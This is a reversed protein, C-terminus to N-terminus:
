DIISLFNNYAEEVDVFCQVSEEETLKENSKLQNLKILWEVIKSRGNFNMKTVRNLSTALAALLPHLDEKGRYNLHVGDCFTIFNGAAQAVAKASTHGRNSVQSSSGEIYEATAPIGLEIRRIGKQAQINYEAVFDKLSSFQNEVAEERILTAYNNLLKGIIDNYDDMNISDREFAKEIEDISIILSYVEALGDM